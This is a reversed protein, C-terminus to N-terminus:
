APVTAGFVDGENAGIGKITVTHGPALVLTGEGPPHLTVGGDPTITLNGSASRNAVHFERDGAVIGSAISLEKAGAATFRLYSGSDGAALSRSAASVVIMPAIPNGNAGPPGRLSELWEEVTGDFGAAVAAEFAGVGDAGDVGKLSALWEAETGVFGARVASDYASIGRPGRNEVLEPPPIACAVDPINIPASDFPVFIQYPKRGRPWDERVTYAWGPMNLDPDNTSPLEAGAPIRGEEDLVYTITRPVVLVGGIEVTQASDFQIRGVIPVGDRGVFRGTIPVRKWNSPLM